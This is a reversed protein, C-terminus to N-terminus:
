FPGLLLMAVAICLCALSCIIYIFRVHKDRSRLGLGALLGAVIPTAGYLELALASWGEGNNV